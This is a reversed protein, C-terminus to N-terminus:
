KATTGEYVFTKTPFENILELEMAAINKNAENVNEAEVEFGHITTDLSGTLEAFKITYTNM